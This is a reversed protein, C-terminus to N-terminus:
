SFAEVAEADRAVVPFTMKIRLELLCAPTTKSVM